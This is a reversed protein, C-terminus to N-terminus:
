WDVADGGAPGFLRALDARLRQEDVAEAAAARARLDQALAHEYAWYRHLYLRGCADLVLPCREGPAGVVATARLAATWAELPPAVVPSVDAPAEEGADPLVVRGAIAALDVCVHGAATARSALCAAFILEPADSGALRGILRAFQVDLDALLGVARLAALRELM